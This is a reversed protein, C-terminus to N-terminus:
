KAPIRAKAAIAESHCDERQTDKAVVQVDLGKYELLVCVKYMSVRDAVLYLWARATWGVCGVRREGRTLYEAM